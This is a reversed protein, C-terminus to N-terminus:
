WQTTTVRYIWVLKLPFGYVKRSTTNPRDFIIAEMNNSAWIEITFTLRSIYTCYLAGEDHINYILIGFGQLQPSMQAKRSYEQM